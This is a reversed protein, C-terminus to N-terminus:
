SAVDRLVPTPDLDLANAIKWYMVNSAPTRGSEIDQLRHRSIELERAFEGSRKGTRERAERVQQGFAVLAPDRTSARKTM